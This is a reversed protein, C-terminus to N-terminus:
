SVATRKATLKSETIGLAAELAAIAVELQEPSPEKTTIKQLWLGPKILVRTIANDRTKGSLKLIEYSSGAVFPLLSFHVGFRTFLSPAHGVVVTYVSDSVSYILIALLAVILIFSTGCRPHFRPHGAATQPTLEDGMEYTFISKHEAGHYQFIRKFDGFLSIVWVYAVFITLRIAGAMLNFSVADKQIGFLSAVALPLFFFIAIGLGIAVVATVALTLSNSKRSKENYDQGKQAAEEKELERVAIDASFNLTRIGLVLMEAFAIAGRILPLKLIRHRTTLSKFDDTKLLIEGSPIRVATAVKDESRMMVGEIVAQGGVKLDPM